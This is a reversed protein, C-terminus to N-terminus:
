KKNVARRMQCGLDCTEVPKAPEKPAAPAQAHAKPKPMPGPVKPMPGPVKPPPPAKPAAQGPTVAKPEDSAAAATTEATPTPPPAPAQPAAATATAAAAQAPEGSSRMALFAGVAAAVALVGGVAVLVTRNNKPATAVDLDDKADVAPAALPPPANMLAGPGLGAFLDPPAVLSAVELDGRPEATKEIAGLARLDILGSDDREKERKRAAEEAKKLSDLSFLSSDDNRAGIAAAGKSSESPDRTDKM